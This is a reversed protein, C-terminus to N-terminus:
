GKKHKMIALTHPRKVQRGFYRMVIQLRVIVANPRIVCALLGISLLVGVSVCLLLHQCQELVFSKRV